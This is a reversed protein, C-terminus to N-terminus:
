TEVPVQWSTQYDKNYDSTRPWRWLATAECRLFSGGTVMSNSALHAGIRIQFSASCSVSQNWSARSKRLIRITM